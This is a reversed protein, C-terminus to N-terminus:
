LKISEIENSCEENIRKNWKKSDNIKIEEKNLGNVSISLYLVLFISFLLHKIM